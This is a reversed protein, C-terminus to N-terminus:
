VWEDLWVIEGALEEKPLSREVRSIGSIFETVPMNQDNYLIIGGHDYEDHIRAFDTDNTLIVRNTAASQELHTRDVTGQEYGGDNWSVDHGNARLETVFVRRVHEDALFRM